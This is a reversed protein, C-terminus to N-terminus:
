LNITGMQRVIRQARTAESLGSHDTAYTGQLVCQTAVSPHWASAATAFALAGAVASSIAISGVSRLLAAVVTVTSAIRSQQQATDFEPGNSTYINV